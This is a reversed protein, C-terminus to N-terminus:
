SLNNIWMRTVVAPLTPGSGPFVVRSANVAMNDAMLWLPPKDSNTPGVVPYFWIGPNFGALHSHRVIVRQGFLGWIRIGERLVQDPNTLVTACNNEVLLSQVNGVFIAQADHFQAGPPLGLYIQNGAITVVTATERTRPNQKHNSMGVTIGQVADHISNNLIRCEQIGEGGVSIARAMAQLDAKDLSAIVNILATNNRILKPQLLFSRAAKKMFLLLDRNTSFMKPAYQDLYQQWFERLLPHTLFQITQGGAKVTTLVKRQAVPPEAVAETKAPPATKQPQATGSGQQASGQQASGQQPGGQQPSGAAPEPAAGSQAATGVPAAGVPKKTSTTDTDAKLYRADSIFVRLAAARFARNQLRTFLTTIKPQYSALTNDEVQARQVRVLLIGEQGSGVQLDCHRIRVEGSGTFPDGQKIEVGTLAVYSNEVMICAATRTLGAGCQLGVSDVSVLSCDAFSLTGGLAPRGARRNRITVTDTSAYLSSIEVSACKDFILAASVGTAVIQTGMGGGTFRLNGLGSLVLPSTLPFKGVPFCIDASAGAKLALLPEEWGTGPKPVITCPGDDGCTIATLPPFKIRCDQVLYNLKEFEQPAAGAPPLKSNPSLQVCALPAQYIKFYGPPLAPDGQRGCAWDIQGSATRAPITWYDGSVYNGIKSFDVEIGYELTMPADSLPIGGPQASTGSQDWRRMRANMAPNVNPTGSLMVQLPGPGMASIQYLVGPQNPNDGYLYSDDILEVWQNVQFGLNADPGLSNVTVIDGSVQTVQAVVSGNERSWKFTATSYNGGNHIEVRYLQNELGQYGAAPIPQCGCDNGGSGTKATMGGTHQLPTQRYLAQCCSSLLEVPNQNCNGAGSSDVTLTVDADSAAASGSAAAPQAPTQAATQQALMTSSATGIVRWITQLRATTDAQGIAPEVLCPDDIETVFRRWVQLVFQVSEKGSNLAAMLSSASSPDATGSPIFFRQGTYERERDNEVLIGSVYYRGPGILIKGNVIKIAFGADNAPAGYDGIVDVNTTDRLYADIATQENADADLAVRGQQQLVATYNKEPTFRIRSFDGRM